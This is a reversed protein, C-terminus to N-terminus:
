LYGQTCSLAHRMLHSLSRVILGFSWTFSRLISIFGTLFCAEPFHRLPMLAQDYALAVRAALIPGDLRQGNQREWGIYARWAAAQAAQAAGGRGARM